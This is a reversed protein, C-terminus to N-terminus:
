ETIEPITGTVEEVKKKGFKERARDVFYYLIPILYVSIIMSSILGGIIVWALGNKWEADAGKAIAVPIMGFVMALTTMLIPRLRLRGAEVIADKYYMGNKKLQNTFDVLLIANKAVLGVLMLMGLMSFISINSLTLNLALLAGILAAPVSFLIIFPYLFDDFLLVMVFFVIILSILIALGLSGFSENEYKILGGWILPTSKLIDDKQIESKIDGAISGESRGLNHATVTISTRRDRRELLTPGASRQVDAFQSLQVQQGMNNIFGIEKLDDPNKRNFADLMIRITYDTGNERYKSNDNGSLANQITGGVVATNLGFKAMKENDMNIRLEPNGEEEVSIKSDIAGTIKEILSKLRQAKPFITEYNDGTLTIEIPAIEIGVISLNTSTYKVGSYKQELEKRLNLMYKETSIKERENEPKLQVTLESENELGFGTGGFGTKPGGINAFVSEVEPKSMLYQEINQLFLNNQTVTTSKSFEFTLRFKGQDGSAFLEQGLIGMKMMLGTAVFLLAIISLVITKHFLSWKL